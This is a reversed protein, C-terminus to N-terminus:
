FCYRFCNSNEAIIILLPFSKTFSQCFLYHVVLNEDCVSEQQVKTLLANCCFM